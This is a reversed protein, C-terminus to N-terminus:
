RSKAEVTVDGTSSTADVGYPGSQVAQVGRVVAAGSSSDAEVRYRGAPVVARVDGSTSRLVLQQPACSADADIQGSDSRVQLSFGCFGQVRVAGTRTRVTGSGRYGSFRVTGTDTRIEVPVNDPVVVRYRVSCSPLATQPCRSRVRFVGDEVSREVVAPHDFAFRDRRQVSVDARNGGGAVVVDGDGLDLAIGNLSGRVAYTALREEGAAVRAIVLAIGAGLVVLASVAVLRGWPSLRALRSV